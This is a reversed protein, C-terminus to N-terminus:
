VGFNFAGSSSQLDIFTSSKALSSSDVFQLVSSLRCHGRHCHFWWAILWGVHLLNSLQIDLRLSFTMFLGLGM